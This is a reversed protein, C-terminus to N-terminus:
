KADACCVIIRYLSSLNSDSARFVGFMERSVRYQQEGLPQESHKSWIKVREDFLERIHAMTLHGALSPRYYHQHHHSGNHVNYVNRGGDVMLLVNRVQHALQQM